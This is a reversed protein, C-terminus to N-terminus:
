ATGNRLTDLDTLFRHVANALRSHCSRIQDLRDLIFDLTDNACRKQNMMFYVSERLKAWLRALGSDNTKPAASLREEERRVLEIMSSLHDEVMALRSYLSVSREYFRSIRSTLVKDLRHLRIAMAMDINHTEDLLDSVSKQHVPVSYHDVEENRGMSLGDFSVPGINGILDVDLTGITARIEAKLIALERASSHFGNWVGDSEFEVEYKANPYRMLIADSAEQFVTTSDSLPKELSRITSLVSRLYGHLQAQARLTSLYSTLLEDTKPIAARVDAHYEDCSRSYWIATTPVHCLSPYRSLLRPFVFFLLVPLLLCSNVMIWATTNKQFLRGLWSRISAAGHCVRRTMRDKTAIRPMPKKDVDRNHPAKVHHCTRPRIESTKSVGHMGFSISPMILEPGEVSSSGTAFTSELQQSQSSHEFEECEALLVSSSFSSDIDIENESAFSVDVPIRGACQKVGQHDRNDVNPIVWSDEVVGGTQPHSFTTMDPEAHVTNGIGASMNSFYRTRDILLTLQCWGPWLCDHM